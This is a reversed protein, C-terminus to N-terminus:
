PKGLLVDRTNMHLQYKDCLQTHDFSQDKELIVEDKAQIEWEARADFSM